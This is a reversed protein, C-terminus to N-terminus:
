EADAGDTRGSIEDLKDLAAQMEPSVPGIRFIAELRGCREELNKVRARLRVNERKTTLSTHAEKELTAIQLAQANVKDKLWLIEQSLTSFLVGDAELNLKRSEARIKPLQWIFCALTVLGGVLVGVLGVILDTGM